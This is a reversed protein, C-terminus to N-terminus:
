CGTLATMPRRGVERSMALALREAIETPVDPRFSRIDKADQDVKARMVALPSSLNDFPTGNCIMEFLVVGFSYIDMSPSISDESIAEPALYTATGAFEGGIATIDRHTAGLLAAIGFDSLAVRGQPKDEFL